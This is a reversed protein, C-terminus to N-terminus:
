QSQGGRKEVLVNGTSFYEIISKHTFYLVLIGPYVVQLFLYSIYSPHSIFILFVTLVWGFSFYVTAKRAWEKRLLIGWGSVIFFISIISQIISASKFQALTVATEINQRKLIDTVAALDKSTINFYASIFILFLLIGFVFLNIGGLLLVGVPRKKDKQPEQEM